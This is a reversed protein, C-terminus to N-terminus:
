NTNSGTANSLVPVHHRGLLTHPGGYIFELAVNLGAQVGLNYNGMRFGDMANFRSPYWLLAAAETGAYPSALSPFSFVRHGDDGRRATVTSILAHGLRSGFGTCECRYYITDERFIAALTYRSTQTILNIGFNNAVREGYAGMGGGWEPPANDAQQVGGAALSGILAYPGFSDFLYNHLKESNTPKSYLVGPQTNRHTSTNAKDSSVPATSQSATGSGAGSQARAPGSFVAISLCVLFVPLAQHMKM